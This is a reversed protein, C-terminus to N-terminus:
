HSSGKVFSYSSIMVGQIKSNELEDILNKTIEVHSQYSDNFTNESLLTLYFHISNTFIYVTEHM